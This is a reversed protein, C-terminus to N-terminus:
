LYSFDQDDAEEGGDLFDEDEAGLRTRYDPHRNKLYFEIARLDGNVVKEYLRKVPTMHGEAVWEDMVVKLAPDASRWRVLTSIDVGILMSVEKLSCCLRCATRIQGLIVANLKTKQGVKKRMEVLPDEDDLTGRVRPKERTKKVEAVRKLLKERENM